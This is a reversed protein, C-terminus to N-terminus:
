RIKNSICFVDKRKCKSSDKLRVCRYKHFKEHMNMMSSLINHFSKHLYKEGFSEEIHFMKKTEKNNKRVVHYNYSIIM